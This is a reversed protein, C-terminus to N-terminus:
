ENSKFEHDFENDKTQFSEIFGIIDYHQMLSYVESNNSHLKSALSEINWPVVNINMM